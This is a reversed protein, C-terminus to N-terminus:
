ATSSIMGNARTRQASNTAAVARESSRSVQRATAYASLKFRRSANSVVTTSDEDSQM